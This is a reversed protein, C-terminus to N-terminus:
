ASIVKGINFFKTFTKSEGAGVARDLEGALSLHCHGAGVATVCAALTDLLAAAAVEAAREMGIDAGLRTKM